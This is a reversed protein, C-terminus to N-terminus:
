LKPWKQPLFWGERLNNIKEVVPADLPEFGCSKTQCFLKALQDATDFGVVVSSVFRNRKVFEYAYQSVTMKSKQACLEISDLIKKVEVERQFRSKNEKFILGQTFISRAIVKKECEYMHKLLGSRHADQNLIGYAIQITSCGTLNTARKAYEDTYVSAGWSNFSGKEVQEDLCEWVVDRSLDREDHLLLVVSSCNSMKTFPCGLLFKDVFLPVDSDDKPFNKIKTYVGFNQHKRQNFFSVIRDQALGYMPSTDFLNLDFEVAKELLSFVERESVIEKANKGLGYPMGLQASGVVIDNQM